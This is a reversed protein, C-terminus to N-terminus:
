LNSKPVSIENGVIYIRRGRTDPSSFVEKLFNDVSQHHDRMALPFHLKLGFYGEKLVSIAKRLHTLLHDKLLNVETGHFYVDLCFKSVGRSLDSFSIATVEQPNTPLLMSMDASSFAVNHRLAVNRMGQKTPKVPWWFTYANIYSQNFFKQRIVDDTLLEVANEPSLMKCGHGIDRLGPM